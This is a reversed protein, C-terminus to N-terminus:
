LVGDQQIFLALREGYWLRCKFVFSIANGFEFHCDAERAEVISLLQLTQSVLAQEVALLFGLFSYTFGCHLDQLPEHFFSPDLISALCFLGFTLRQLLQWLLLLFRTLVIDALKETRINPSRLGRRVGVCLTGARLTWGEAMRCRSGAQCGIPM